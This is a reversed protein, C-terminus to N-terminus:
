KSRKYTKKWLKEVSEAYAPCNKKLTAMLGEVEAAVKAEYEDFKKKMNTEVYLKKIKDVNSSDQSGYCEKFIKKQNENAVSLFTVALWSCKADQIDTGVKGLVEPPTFCDMVDDQVQFYEGMLMAVRHLTKSDVLKLSGSIILGMQLPLWYTYYATKYVVIRRYNFETFEVYDTTNGHATFPDLKKSDVMSTVDYLQGMTTCMDVEHFCLLIQALIENRGSFYHHALKTAWALLILGDNIAVQTTVGPHLYWCPNGRRVESHDMIDDEVLFHAQLLEIMWGCVAADHLLRQKRDGTINLPKTMAEAVDIVCLGRNYKGGLCTADMMQELYRQRDVDLEYKQRSETMLYAKIEEYVNLFLEMQPSKSM